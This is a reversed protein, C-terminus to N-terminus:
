TNSKKIRNVKRKKKKIDENLDETNETNFADFDILNYILDGSISFGVSLLEQISSNTRNEVENVFNFFSDKHYYGFGSDITEFLKLIQKKQSTGNKMVIAYDITDKLNREFGFMKDFLSEGSQKFAKRDFQGLKASHSINRGRSNNMPSLKIKNTIDKRSVIIQIHMQEGDKREGKEKIGQKVESDTHSYYRYHELKGYWLLDANSDVGLRKFNKAYEDMIKVAFFKMKEEINLDGFEQKLYQIEKQSPSINILFFKADNRGLKSINNDIKVRVEQPRIEPNNGNFWLEPTLKNEVLRNEKELYNVLAACSGKNNGTESDTINIFM